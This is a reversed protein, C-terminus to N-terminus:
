DSPSTTADTITDFEGDGLVFAGGSGQNTGFSAADGSFLICPAGLAATAVAPDVPKGAADIFLRRTAEPIHGTGDLLNVGVMMRFDAMDFLGADTPGVSFGHGGLQPTFPDGWVDVTTGTDLIGDRYVVATKVVGFDFATLFHHWVTKDSVSTLADVYNDGTADPCYFDFKGVASGPSKYEGVIGTGSYVRRINPDTKVWFSLALFSSDPAVLSSTFLSVAYFNVAPAHYPVPGFTWVDGNSLDFYTTGDPADETPPGYGTMIMVGPGGPPGEPGNAANAIASNLDDATLTDGDHWPYPM